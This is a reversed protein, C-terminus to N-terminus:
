SYSKILSVKVKVSNDHEIERRLGGLAKILSKQIARAQPVYEEDYVEISVNDPDSEPIVIKMATDKEELDGDILYRDLGEKGEEEWYLLNKGKFNNRRFEEHTFKRVVDELKSGYESVKESNMDCGVYIRCVM